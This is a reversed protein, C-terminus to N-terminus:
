SGLIRAYEYLFSATMIFLTGLSQRMAEDLDEQFRKDFDDEICVDASPIACSDVPHSLFLKVYTPIMFLNLFYIFLILQM